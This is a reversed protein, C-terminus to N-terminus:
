LCHVGCQWHVRVCVCVSLGDTPTHISRGAKDRTVDRHVCTAWVGTPVNCAAHFLVHLPPAQPSCATLLFTTHALPIQAESPGLALPGGLVARAGWCGRM